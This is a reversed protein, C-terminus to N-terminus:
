ERGLRARGQVQNKMKSEREGSVSVVHDELLRERLSAIVRHRVGNERLYAELSGFQEEIGDLAQEIYDASADMMASIADVPYLRLLHQRDGAMTVARAMDEELTPISASRVYDSIIVDRSVGLAALLIAVAVGTRDKGASCHIVCPAAGEGIREMMEGFAHGMARPNERYFDRM